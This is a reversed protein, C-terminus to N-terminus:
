PDPPSPIKTDEVGRFVAADNESSFVSLTRSNRCFSTSHPESPHRGEDGNDNKTGKCLTPSARHSDDLGAPLRFCAAVRGENPVAITVRSKRVSM